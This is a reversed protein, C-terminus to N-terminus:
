MPILELGPKFLVCTGVFLDTDRIRIGYSLKKTVNRWSYVLNSAQLTCLKAM